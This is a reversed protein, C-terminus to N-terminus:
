KKNAEPQKVEQIFYLLSVASLMMIGAVALIFQFIDWQASFLTITWDEGCWGLIGGICLPSLARGIFIVIWSLSMFFARGRDPVLHFMQATCAVGSAAIMGGAFVLAVPLLYMTAAQSMTGVFVVFFCVVCLVLHTALFIRKTGLKDVLVGAVFLSAITGFNSFCYIFINDDAPFGRHRIYLVLPQGLFGMFFGLVGYYALFILLARQKLLGKIYHRWDDFELEGALSNGTPMKRVIFSRGAFLVLTILFIIQFQWLDPNKGLFAGAALVAAVSVVNWISRMKGFFRGRTHVPVIDHLLPFWFVGGSASIASAISFLVLFSIVSLQGKGLVFPLLFALGLLGTAVHWCNVMFRKGRGPAIKMSAPLQIIRTLLLLSAPLMAQFDSGGLEKIFLVSVASGSALVYYISGASAAWYVSRMGRTQQDNTLGQNATPLVEETPDAKDQM